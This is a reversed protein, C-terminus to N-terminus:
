FCISLAMFGKYKDVFTSKKGNDKALKDAIGNLYDTFHVTLKREINQIHKLNKEFEKIKREFTHFLFKFIDTSPANQNDFLRVKVDSDTELTTVSTLYFLVFGFILMKLNNKCISYTTVSQIRLM